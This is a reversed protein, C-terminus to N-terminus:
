VEKLIEKLTKNGFVKREYEDMFSDILYQFESIYVELEHDTLEDVRSGMIRRTKQLRNEEQRTPFIDKLAAEVSKVGRTTIFDHRNDASITNM